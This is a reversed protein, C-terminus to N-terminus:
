GEWGGGAGEEGEETRREDAYRVEFMRTWSPNLVFIDLTFQDLPYLENM